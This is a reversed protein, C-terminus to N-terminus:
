SFEDRLIDKSKQQSIIAAKRVPRSRSSKPKSDESIESGEADNPSINQKCELVPILTSVHRKVLERTKGKLVIAGTVEDLDNTITQKVVALPYHNPKINVEKLLVIDGERLHKHNIKQYRDQRDVAQAILTALFEEQYIKLLETRVKRLKAYADKISRSSDDKWDPDIVPTNQLDPIINLSTLEYGRILHEPTIPDPVSDLKDDRLAEKFAIPRRNALHVVYSVLFEFDPYDLLNNKIAGFILRKSLKVCVEVMSGLESCGKFYHQFTLPKINQSDFYSQTEPENLFDSIINAGATLQSGLDSICLQPIGYEFSHMQFARLFGKVTLDSCIKLNIARTWTCTICLLWVKASEGNKKVNIPGLHDVFVNAFPVKPPNARFDRYSSQNLKVTRANFRKCHVCRKLCKKITSFPKTVFFQKRFEALVSYCGTHALREHTDLIVLDTLPSERSLLIPFKDNRSPHWKRFKCKVRLLGHEDPFVNLQAVLPPIESSKPKVKSFYSFIEPFYKKQDTEIIQRSAEAFSNTGNSGHSIGAKEKWRRACILVRRYLLVLRRFSSFISPDILPKVTSSQISLASLVENSCEQSNTIRASSLIASPNPITVDVIEFNSELGKDFDQLNPGQFFTSKLLVKYSICRTVCDAPNHKGSVFRFRVPFGECLSDISKLRNMVFVSQKQMKDLKGSYSNLWHLCCVSDTYLHLETINIPHLCGSGSLDRFIEMLTEVGLSIANFELSPISKLKLQNNVIRNRAMIFSINGTEVHLIYVVTGYLLHSADTFALLKYTGKRPGVYRDVKIEPTANAQKSINKWERQLDPSIKADWGLSKDCQLNHMFVRSRNLIPLNFNYIDFQAAVTRLISRKTNATADLNIPRTFLTDAKCDWTLGLLKVNDPTEQNYDHDIQTQLDLNNSNLQQVEFRYPSFIHPLINYADTLEQVSDTSIAGNDMYLLAYMLKKLEKLDSPDNTSDLVLMRFLSIMLLFPSCRLGFSLRVNKYAVVSFDNKEINRYWLFLLKSQDSDSLTLQNFAKKLDYTLLHKGFRLQLLSSSLKQNLTPGAYMAQNHSICLRGSKDQERLNSLFVIRCKTTERDLKFIGMHPLFSHEPHDVLYDELNEIREIIGAKVQDKITQNMLELHERNKNLKKLNSTLIAKALHKNKALLHKVKANWLLPVEIRGDDCRKLNKLTYDVLSDHIERSEDNYVQCDYNTYRKCEEELIQDTARSIQREILKGKDNLATFDDITKLHKFELGVEDDNGTERIESILFSHTQFFAQTHTDKVPELSDDITNTMGASVSEFCPLYPLDNVLSDINGMLMIGIPTDGYVSSNDKGFCVERCPFVHLADAGLLLDLNRIADSDNNLFTDALHYGKSEFSLVINGLKPLKLDVRISPVVMALINCVSGNNVMPVEVRKSMYNLPGNFGNILLSVNDQVVRLNLNVAIDEKIFTSQSCNDKMGRFVKNCNEVKFSFTPLITKSTMSPLVAVSNSTENRTSKVKESSSAKSNSNQPSKGSLCLFDFHWMSCHYCKRKFQFKCEKAEHGVSGCKICGGLNQLKEVKDYPTKFQPCRFIPHDKSKVNSKDCLICTQSGHSAKSKVAVAFNDMSLQDDTKKVKSEKEFKLSNAYRENAVFFNDVIEQFSPRTKATIQVM